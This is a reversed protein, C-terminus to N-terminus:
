IHLHLQTQSKSGYKNFNYVKGPYQKMIIINHPFNNEIKM